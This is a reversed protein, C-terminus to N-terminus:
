QLEGKYRTQGLFTLLAEACLILLCPGTRSSVADLYARDGVHRGLMRAKAHGGGTGSGRM